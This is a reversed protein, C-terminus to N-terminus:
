QSTRELNLVNGIVHQCACTTGAECRAHQKRAKVRIKEAEAVSNFNERSADTNLKGGKRCPPCIV